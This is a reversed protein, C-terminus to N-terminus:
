HWSYAVEHANFPLDTFLSLLHSESTGADKFGPDKFGHESKDSFELLEVFSSEKRRWFGYISMRIYAIPLIIKIESIISILAEQKENEARFLKSRV